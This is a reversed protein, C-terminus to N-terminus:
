LLSLLRPIRWLSLVHGGRIAGGLTITELEPVLKPVLGLALTRKVLDCFPVGPEAVCRRGEVDLEIVESLDRIDIKRDEHKPDRPNPVVHSVTSKRISAHSGCNSRERIQEAIRAVRDAHSSM